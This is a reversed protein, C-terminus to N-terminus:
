RTWTRFAADKGNELAFAAGGGFSTALSGGAYTDLGSSAWRV